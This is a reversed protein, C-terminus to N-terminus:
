LIVSVRYLLVMAIKAEIKNATIGNVHNILLITKSEIINGNIRVDIKRAKFIPGLDTEFFLIRSRKDPIDMPTAM